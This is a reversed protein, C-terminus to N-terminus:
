SGSSNLEPRRYNVKTTFNLNSKTHSIMEADGRAGKGDKQWSAKAEQLARLEEGSLKKDNDPM